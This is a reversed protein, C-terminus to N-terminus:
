RLNRRQRTRVADHNGSAHNGANGANGSGNGPVFGLRTQEAQTYADNAARIAASFQEREEPTLTRGFRRSQRVAELVRRLVPLVPSSDPLRKAAELLTSEWEDLEKVTSYRGNTLVTAAAEAEDDTLNGGNTALAMNLNDVNGPSGAVSAGGRSTPGTMSYLGAETAAERVLAVFDSWPEGAQQFEKVESALQGDTPVRQPDELRIITLLRHAIRRRRETRTAERLRAHVRENDNANGTANNGADHFSKDGYEPAPAATEAFALGFNSALTQSLAVARADDRPRTRKLGLRQALAQLSGLSKTKTM